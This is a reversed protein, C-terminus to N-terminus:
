GDLSRGCGMQWLIGPSLSFCTSKWSIKGKSQITWATHAFVCMDRCHGKMHIHVGLSDRRIGRGAVNFDSGREVALFVQDIQSLAIQNLAASLFIGRKGKRAKKVGKGWDRGGKWEGKKGEWQIEMCKVAGDRYSALWFVALFDSVSGWCMFACKWRSLIIAVSIQSMKKWKEFLLGGSKHVLMLNENCFFLSSFIIWSYSKIYIYSTHISFVRARVIFFIFFNTYLLVTSRDCLLWLEM